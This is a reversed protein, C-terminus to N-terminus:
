PRCPMRGLGSLQSRPRRVERTSKYTQRRWTGVLTPHEPTVEVPGSEGPLDPAVVHPPWVEVPRVVGVPRPPGSGGKGRSPTRRRWMGGHLCSCPRGQWTGTASPGERPVLGVVANFAPLHATRAWTLAHDVWSVGCYARKNGLHRTV